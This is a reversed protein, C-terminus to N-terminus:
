KRLAREKKMEMAAKHDRWLSAEDEIDTLFKAYLDGHVGAANLYNRVEEIIGLHNRHNNERWKDLYQQRAEIRAKREKRTEM